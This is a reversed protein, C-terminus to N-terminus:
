PKADEITARVADLLAQENLDKKNIAALIRDDVTKDALLHHIIVPNKQGQRHLRANTQLYSELSWPVTYWILTYGGDQLNLGAGSSKPQLLMIPIEKNNWAHVMEPSGDLVKAEPFYNLLMEKDSKFHYAILVSGGTNEIIYECQELKREHIIEYNGDKDTYIAGSAMQSLKNQLVASNAAVITTDEDLELVQTKMFTKYVEYEADTMYVHIDNYTIEPLNLVTNKVSIVLDSVRRHIEDEAGPKPTWQVPYGNVCLGPNFFMERYATINHGLRLGGDMLYIESWLDMLGNPTPTGTLGIFRCTQPMVKKLAKFRESKYSKFGQLEDIIVVGFPWIPEKNQEPLNKCLDTILERNIFYVTPPDNLTQQYLELRKKRSLDKGKENVILSKTRLPFGWKKIEDIWTSRAINKPAIILVHYPLNMDYLASLTTLTKGTGVDLFLGCYPHNLVFDKAQQQHPLLNPPQFEPM